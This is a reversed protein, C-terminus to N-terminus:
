SINMKQCELNNRLNQELNYSYIYHKRLNVHIKFSLIKSFYNFINKEIQFSYRSKYFIFLKHYKKIYLVFELRYKLM